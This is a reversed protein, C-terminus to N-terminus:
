EWSREIEKREAKIKRLWAELQTKMKRATQLNRDIINNKEFPDDKLNFLEYTKGNNVTILKYDDTVWSQSNNFIFGIPKNRRVEKQEILKWASRGDYTRDGPMDINLLDLITPFYDSTVLPVDTSTGGKLKNKWIVFAPVRVGGEYLARKRGRFNGASGPTETEPGNDSCYFILTNDAEGISELYKWLRGLQEDLATIAGYYNQEYFGLGPYQNRYFQNTVIPLHPTHFWITSFFPHYNEKSQQIFDIAHDMILKSDDGKLAGTEKLLGTKWYYTGYVQTEEKREKAAWGNRLSEGQGFQVPKELPNYTPVKSETSFYVDYGHDAPVTFHIIEGPRGGRNADLETKSFTGLHWKGFHGTKYGKKKLVEALTIENLDLHGANANPVGIRCPNRGTMVSARTPSCVASASYFRNLVVGQSALHDTHPTKVKTNGNFGVDFWGQDDAMILLINPAKKQPSTQSAGGIPNSWFVGFFIMYKVRM